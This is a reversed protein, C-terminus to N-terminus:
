NSPREVSAADNDNDKTPREFSDKSPTMDWNRRIEEVQEDTFPPSAIHEEIFPPSTIPQFDFSEKNLALVQPRATFRKTVYWTKRYEWPWCGYFVRMGIFMMLLALLATMIREGSVDWLVFDLPFGSIFQNSETILSKIQSIM